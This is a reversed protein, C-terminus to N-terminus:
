RAPARRALLLTIDDSPGQDGEFRRVADVIRRAFAECPEGAQRKLMEVLAEEGWMTGDATQAETVGDTFLTLTAEPALEIAGAQYSEDELMGLLLGGTELTTVECGGAVVYPPNHGANCYEFRGDRPDLVGLFATVFRGPEVSHHLFRNLRAMVRAPDTTGDLQSLLSARFASMLLAAPVGKGSVDAIVLAVRGDALVIHDFYDGGVERAPESLGAIDVGAVRPPRAPLLRSQIRRALALESELRGRELELQRGRQLGEAMRNFAAAVAWLEDDGEVPIRHELRGAELAGAGGRLAAVAATISTGLARMLGAARFWLRVGALLLLGILVLPVLSVEWARARRFFGALTPWLDVHVTLMANTRQWGEPTRAWSALNAFGVFPSIERQAPSRSGPRATMRIGTPLFDVREGATGQFVFRADIRRAIDDSLAGRMRIAVLGSLTTDAPARLRACLYSRGGAVLVPVELSVAPLTALAASDLAADGAVRRWAGRALWATMGQQRRAESAALARLREEAREPQALALALEDRLVQAQAQYEGRAAEARESATGLYSSLAWLLAMVVVPVVTAIVLLVVLRRGVSPIALARRKILFALLRTGLGVTGLVLAIRLAVGSIDSARLFSALRLAIM